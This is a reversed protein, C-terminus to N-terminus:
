SPIAHRRIWVYGCMFWKSNRTCNKVPIVDKWFPKFGDANNAKPKSGFKYRNLNAILGPIVRWIYPLTQQSFSTFHFRNLQKCRPTTNYQMFKQTCFSECKLWSFTSSFSFFTVSIVKYLDFIAWRRIVQACYSLTRLYDASVRGRKGRDM